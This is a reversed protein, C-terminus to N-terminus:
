LHKRISGAKPSLGADIDRMELSLALSRQAMLAALFTEAAAFIRAVAAEKVEQPRGERLRISMDIFAHKPDGDAIAYHEARFARVRIGAMPFTEIEAAVARITECFARMDLEGELNASYEISFHPM